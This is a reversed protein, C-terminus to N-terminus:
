TVVCVNETEVAFLIYAIVLTQLRAISGVLYSFYDFPRLMFVSNDTIQLELDSVFSGSYIRSQRHNSAKHFDDDGHYSM